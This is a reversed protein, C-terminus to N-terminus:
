RHWNLSAMYSDGTKRFILFDYKGNPRSTDFWLNKEETPTMYEYTGDGRSLMISIGREYNPRGEKVAKSLDIVEGRCKLEYEAYIRDDVSKTNGTSEFEAALKEPISKGNGPISEHIIYTARGSSAWAEDFENVPYKLRVGNDDAAAPDNVVVYDRGDQGKTFGCAVILHGGTSPIPAGHIIPYPKDVNESNRYRVSVAVPNGKIIERKLDDVSNMYEVYSTFGFCGAYAMNFTWNGYGDYVSDYVGMASQEPLIDVGRYKLLMSVCTPSCIVPGILPDRIYQSYAPVDLTKDLNHFEKPSIDDYYVKEIREGELANRFAAAMLKLVPTSKPDETLFTVRYRFADATEGSSGKVILTDTGVYALSDEAEKRTLSARESTSSWVGWSLWNSWQGNIRAQGEIRISTGKPTDANWSLVLHEFAPTGIIESTYTGGSRYTGGEKILQVEGDRYQMIATGQNIGKEFDSATTQIWLNGLLYEDEKQTADETHKEIGKQEKSNEGSQKGTCGLTKESMSGLVGLVPFLLLRKISHKRKM